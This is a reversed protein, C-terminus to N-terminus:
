VEIKVIRGGERKMGGELGRESLFVEGKGLV